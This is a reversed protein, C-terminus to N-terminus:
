INCIISGSCSQVNKNIWIYLIMNELYIRVLSFGPDLILAYTVQNSRVSIEWWLYSYWKVNGGAIYLHAWKEKTNDAPFATPNKLIQYALISIDWHIPNALFNM